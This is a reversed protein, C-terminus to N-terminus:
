NISPTNSYQLTSLAVLVRAPFRGFGSEFSDAVLTNKDLVGHNWEEM